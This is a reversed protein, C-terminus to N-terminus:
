VCQSVLLIKISVFISFLIMQFKPMKKSQGLEFCGTFAGIVTNIPSVMVFVLILRKFKSWMSYCLASSQVTNKKLLEQNNM